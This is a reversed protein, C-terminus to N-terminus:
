PILFALGVGTDGAVGIVTFICAAVAAFVTAPRSFHTSTIGALTSGEVPSLMGESGEM